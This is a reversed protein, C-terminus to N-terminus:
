RCDKVRSIQGLGAIAKKAVRDIPSRSLTMLLPVIGRQIMKRALPGPVVPTKAAPSEDLTM